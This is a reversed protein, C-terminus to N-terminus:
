RVGTPRAPATTSFELAGRDWVGDAGRTRGWWDVDYAITASCSESLACSDTGAYSTLGATLRYDGTAYSVFPDTTEPALDCNGPYRDTLNESAGVNMDCSVSDMQSWWNYDHTAPLATATGDFVINNYVLWGSRAGDGGIPGATMTLFTNNYIRWNTCTGTNCQVPFGNGIVNGYIRVDTSTQVNNKVFGGSSPSETIWNWRFHLDNMGHMVLAECHDDVNNVSMGCINGSWNYQIINGDGFRFLFPLGSLNDFHLYEFTSDDVTTSNYIGHARAATVETNGTQVFSAHRITVNSVADAVTVYDVTTGAASTFTFGHGSTWSGPGGGTVGDFVWYSTAFTVSTWAAAGDGYTWLWGTDTGHSSATAKRITILTTGSVADDFTYAAYSGDAIYYTDGRTLTAPLSTYANTWDSGDATGSAGERVYHNAAEAPWALAMVLLAALWFRRGM